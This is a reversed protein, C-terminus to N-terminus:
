RNGALRIVYLAILLLCHRKAPLIYPLYYSFFYTATNRISMIDHYLPMVAAPATRGPKSEFSRSAKNTLLPWVSEAPM